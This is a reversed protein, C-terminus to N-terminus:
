LNVPDLWRKGMVSINTIADGAQIGDVECALRMGGNLIVDEPWPMSYYIYNYVRQYQGLGKMWFPRRVANAAIVIDMGVACVEYIGSIVVLRLIRDAVNADATFQFGCSCLEFQTRNDITTTWGAGAAPNPVMFNHLNWVSRDSPHHIMSM